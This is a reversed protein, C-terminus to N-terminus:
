IFRIAIMWLIDSFCVMITMWSSGVDEIWQSVDIGRAQNHSVSGEGHNFTATKAKAVDEIWQSVDIGRAQNHSVLGEGHNFTATKAKAM